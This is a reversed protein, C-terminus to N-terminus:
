KSKKALTVHVREDKDAFLPGNILLEIKDFENSSLDVIRFGTSYEHSDNDKNSWVSKADFVIEKSGKIEVPLDMRFQYIADSEITDRTLLRVGDTTMNVLRGLLEETSRDYVGLFTDTQRRRHKRNEGMKREGKVFELVPKTRVRPIRHM